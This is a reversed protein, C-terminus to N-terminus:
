FTKLVSTWINLEDRLLGGLRRNELVLDREVGM